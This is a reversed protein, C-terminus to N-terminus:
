TSAMQRVASHEHREKKFKEERLFDVPQKEAIAWPQPGLTRATQNLKQKAGLAQRQSATVQGHM